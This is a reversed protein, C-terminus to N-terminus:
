LHSGSNSLWLSWRLSRTRMTARCFSSRHGGEIAPDTALTAALLHNWGKVLKAGTFAQTVFASSLLGNMDELRANSNMADIVTKGRWNPLAKAM